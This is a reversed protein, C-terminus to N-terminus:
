HRKISGGAELHGSGVTTLDASAVPEIEFVEVGADPAPEREEPPGTRVAMASWQWPTPEEEQVGLPWGPERYPLFGSGVTDLVSATRAGNLWAYMLSGAALVILTTTLDM